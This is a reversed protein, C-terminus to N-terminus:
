ASEGLFIVKETLEYGVDKGRSVIYGLDVLKRVNYRVVEESVGLSRALEGFKVRRPARHDIDGFMLALLRLHIEQANTNIIIAKVCM